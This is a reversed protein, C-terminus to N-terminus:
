GGASIIQDMSREAMAAITLSPNAGGVNGPIISGDVAYLGGYGHIRGYLDTAKGLECGGVPHATLATPAAIPASVGSRSIWSSKRGAM